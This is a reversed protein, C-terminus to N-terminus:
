GVSSPEDVQLTLGQEQAEQGGTSTLSLSLQNLKQTEKQPRKRCVEKGPPTEALDSTGSKPQSEQIKNKFWSKIHMVFWALDHAM